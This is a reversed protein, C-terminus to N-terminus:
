AEELRDTAPPPTQSLATIEAYLAPDMQYAVADLSPQLQQVSKASLIPSTVAPHAAAWACALTAPHVGERAAIETLGKAAQHMWGLGYRAKYQDNETLRGGEGSAYKGTLLGGGLPSYPAVAIGLDAAMPLIEVEAQRKVLNYMPQIIDIKIGRERALGDAKVVQWAAFNSVGIARAKGTAMLAALGDFTVELPTTDDFRHLYLVDVYDTDMRSLSTELSATLNEPTSPQDYAAKTAVVVDSREAAILPGLIRESEGGTYVYATDFFNLGAGRAAAYMEASAKADAKGGFQMTGFSFRSVSQGSDSKLTM